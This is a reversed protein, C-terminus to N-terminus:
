LAYIDVVKETTEQGRAACDKGKRLVEQPHGM